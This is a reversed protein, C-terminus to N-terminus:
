VTERSVEKPELVRERIASELVIGALRETSIGLAVAKAFIMVEIDAPVRVGRLEVFDPPAVPPIHVSLDNRASM